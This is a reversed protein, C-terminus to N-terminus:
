KECDKEFAPLNGNLDYCPNSQDLKFNNEWM